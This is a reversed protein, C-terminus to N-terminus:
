GGHRWAIQGEPSNGRTRLQSRTRVAENSREDGGCGADRSSSSSAAGGVYVGGYNRRTEERQEEPLSTCLHSSQTPPRGKEEDCITVDTKADSDWGERAVAIPADPGRAPNVAATSTGCGM